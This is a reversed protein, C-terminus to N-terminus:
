SIANTHEVLLIDFFAKGVVVVYSVAVIVVSYAVYVIDAGVSFSIYPCLCEVVTYEM